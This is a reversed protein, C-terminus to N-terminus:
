LASLKNKYEQAKDLKNTKAYIERLAILTNQDKGNVSEAKLFYPLAKNFIEAMQAKLSDYKKTGADSYDNAAANILPTLAAAKNYWLLGQSYYAKFNKPDKAVVADYNTMAKKFYDEAKATDGSESAKQSLQDYVSGLTLVITPNDPEKEKALDLKSILQDLKGARLFENIELFLLSSEEPFLKRGKDLYQTAKAADGAKTAFNYLAEYVIVNDAGLQDLKEFFPISASKDKSYYGAVATILMKQKYLDDTYSTEVGNDKLLDVANLSASYLKFADDYKKMDYLSIGANNLTNEIGPLVKFVKKLLKKNGQALDMASKLTNFAKLAVMPNAVEFSPNILKQNMQSDAIKAYLGAANLLSKPNKAVEDAELATNLLKLGNTLEDVKRMDTAYKAIAKSASKLAKKGTQANLSAVMFLAVFAFLIKKM